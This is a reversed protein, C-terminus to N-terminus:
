TGDRELIKLYLQYEAYICREEVWKPLQPYSMRMIGAVSAPICASQYKIREIFGAPIPIDASTVDPVPGLTKERTKHFKTKRPSKQFPLTDSMRMEWIEHTCIEMEMPPVALESMCRRHLDKPVDFGTMVTTMFSKVLNEDASVHRYFDDVWCRCFRTMEGACFDDFSRAAVLEEPRIQRYGYGKLVDANRALFSNLYYSYTGIEAILELFLKKIHWVEVTNCTKDEFEYPELRLGAYGSYFEGKNKGPYPNHIAHFSFFQRFWESDLVTALAEVSINGRERDLDSYSRGRGTDSRISNIIPDVSSRFLVNKLGNNIRHIYGNLYLGRRADIFLGPNSPPLRSGTIGYIFRNADAESKQTFFAVYANSRARDHELTDLSCEERSYTTESM